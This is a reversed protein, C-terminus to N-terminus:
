SRTGRNEDRRVDYFLVLDELLQFKRDQFIRDEILGSTKMKHLYVWDDLLPALEKTKERGSFKKNRSSVLSLVLFLACLSWPLWWHWPIRAPLGKLFINFSSSGLDQAIFVRVFDGAYFKEGLFELKPSAYTINQSNALVELKRVPVSFSQPLELQFRAQDISYSFSFYRKGPYLPANVFVRNGENSVEERIFGQEYRFDHAVSPVDFFFAPKATLTTQTPNHIWFAQHVRLGQEGLEFYVNMESVELGEVFESNPFVYIPYPASNPNQATVPESIYAADKYITGATVIPYKSADVQFRVRGQKNTIAEAIQEGNQSILIVRQHAIAKSTERVEFSVQSQAFILAFLVELLPM